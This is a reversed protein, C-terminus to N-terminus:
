GITRGFGQYAVHSKTLGFMREQWIEASPFAERLERRTMLRVERVAQIADEKDPCPGRWGCRRKRIMAVRASEPLWQWGVMHFHPEMPFWYNPTQIWFAPAVRQTESAMKRQAELTFLHEIVSNSFAVDFSQDDFDTLATADGVVPHLNEAIKPELELNVVTIQVDARDAWGRNKWFASTGGLDIIRVPKPLGDILESFLQFRRSRMRNGISNPDNSSTVKQMLAM